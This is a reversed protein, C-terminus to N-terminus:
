QLAPCAKTIAEYALTFGELSYTDKTLTGRRSTGEVIMRRGKKMAEVLRADDADAGWATGDRVTGLSFDDDGISLKVSSDRKYDYGATVSVVDRAGTARHTVYLFTPDRQKYKGESKQPAGMLFCGKGGEEQFSAAKWDNFEGLLEVQQVQGLAAAPLLALMGAFLLTRLPTATM